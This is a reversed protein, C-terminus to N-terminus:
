RRQILNLPIEKGEAIILGNRLICKTSNARAIEGRSLLSQNLTKRYDKSESLRGSINLAILQMKKLPHKRNPDHQLTLIDTAPPLIWGPGKIIKILVPWWMQTPWIPVIIVLIAETEDEEIKQIIRPL